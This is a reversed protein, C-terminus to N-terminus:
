CLEWAAGSCGGGQAPREPTGAGGQKGKLGTAVSPAPVSTWLKSLVPSKQRM